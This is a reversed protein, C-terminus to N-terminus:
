AYTSAIKGFKNILEVEESGVYRFLEKDDIVFLFEDYAKKITENTLKEFYFSWAAVKLNTCIEKCMNEDIENLCTIWRSDDSGKRMSAIEVLGHIWNSCIKRLAACLPLNYKEYDYNAKAAMALEALKEKWRSPFGVYYLKITTTKPIYAMMQLKKQAM